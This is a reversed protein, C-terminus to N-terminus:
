KRRFLEGYARFLNGLGGQADYYMTSVFTEPDVGLEEAMQELSTDSIEFDPDQEQLDESVEDAAVVAKWWDGIRM